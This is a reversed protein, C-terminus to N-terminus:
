PAVLIASNEVLPALKGDMFKDPNVAVLGTTVSTPQSFDLDVAASGTISTATAAGLTPTILTPTNDAVIRGTGTIGTLTASGTGGKTLPLIGSVRSGSLSLAAFFPTVADSQLVGDAANTFTTSSVGDQFLVEGAAGGDINSSSGGSGSAAVGSLTKYASTLGSFAKSM